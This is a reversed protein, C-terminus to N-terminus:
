PPQAFPIGLFSETDFASCFGQFTGYDLTATPSGAVSGFASLAFLAFQLAFM